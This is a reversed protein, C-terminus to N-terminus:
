VWLLALMNHKDRFVRKLAMEIGWDTWASGIAAEMKMADIHSESRSHKVLAPSTISQCPVDNWVAKRVQSTPNDVTSIVLLVSWVRTIKLQQWALFTRKGRHISELNDRKRRYVGQVRCEEWVHPLYPLCTNCLNPLYTHARDNDCGKDGNHTHAVMCLTHYFNEFQTSKWDLISVVTESTSKGRMHEDWTYWLFYHGICRLMGPSFVTREEAEVMSLTQM